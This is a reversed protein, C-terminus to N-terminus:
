FSVLVDRNEGQVAGLNESNSSRPGGKGFKCALTEVPLMLKCLTVKRSFKVNQKTQELCVGGWVM